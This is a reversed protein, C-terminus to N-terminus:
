NIAKTVLIKKLATYKRKSVTITEGSFFKVQSTNSCFKQIYQQNVLHSKHIRIFSNNYLNDEFLHLVKSTLLPQQKNDFYIKSYNSSGEIRIINSILFEHSGECTNINISSIM